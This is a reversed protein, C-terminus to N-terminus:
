AVPQSVKTSIEAISDFKEAPTRAMGCETAVGFEGVVRKAAEIRKLTQEEEHGHVLGLYLEAKSLNLDKLPAFYPDDDREKPVPMHIWNVERKTDKLVANALKVMLGTDEPEKFHKNQIDGYCIHMGVEVQEDISDILEALRSTIGEFIPEYYPEFHPAYHGELTAMEPAVDWQVALEEKPIKEQILKVEDLLAKKYIPEIERQFSPNRMFCMVAVPTPLCVQFRTAKSIVGEERLKKFVQYSELAAGAFGPKLPGLSAVIEKVEADAVEPQPIVRMPWEYQKLVAPTSSFIDRQWLIFQSRHAPEGDPLRRLRDPFGTACKRFSTEATDVGCVSGVLHVGLSAM